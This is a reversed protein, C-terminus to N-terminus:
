KLGKRIIMFERIKKRKKYEYIMCYRALFIL